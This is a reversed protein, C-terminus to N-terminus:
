DVKEVDIVEGYDGEAYIGCVDYTYKYIEADGAWNETAQRAEELTEFDEGDWDIDARDTVLYRVITTGIYEAYALHTDTESKRAADMEATFDAASEIFIAGENTWEAGDSYAIKYLGEGKYGDNAADYAALAKEYTTYDIEAEIGGTESDIRQVTFIGNELNIYLIAKAEEEDILKVEGTYADDERHDFYPIRNNEIFANTQEKTGIIYFM